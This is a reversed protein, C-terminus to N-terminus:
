FDWYETRTLVESGTETILIVDELRIGGVDPKFIGPEIAVVMFPQLVDESGPRIYPLEGASLGQGHGTGHNHEWEGYGAKQIIQRSIRDVEKGKAGPLLARISAQEAEYVVQYAEKQAQSPKGVFATRAYEVNYGEYLAGEDILVLEGRRIRKDTSIETYIVGNHGSSVVSPFAPGEAGANRMAYEAAAAVEYERKGELCSDLAARMGIEAVAAAERMVRIEIPNKIARAQDMIDSGTVECDLESLRQRLKEGESFSVLSDVAVRLNRFGSQKIYDAVVTPMDAYIFRVEKVWPAVEAVYKAYFPRTFLIPNESNRHLLAIHSKLTAIASYPSFATLYRVNQMGNCVVMDVAREKMLSRTREVNERSLEVWDITSFLQPM